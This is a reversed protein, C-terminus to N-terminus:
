AQGGAAVPWRRLCGALDDLVQRRIDELAGGADVVLFRGPDAHERHLYAARVRDFYTDERAEFRDAARVASRREAAVAPLLDFLYTRDPKLDGHVWQELMALRGRDVGAGGGQYAFTSDTFRDCVVWHGQALAPRIVRDLHDNRAAFALLAETEPQMEKTLLLQRISEALESGGPERTLVVTLGQSRLWEACAEVHSSKGAGDIGEFSIFAGRGAM